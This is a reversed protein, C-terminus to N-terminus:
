VGSQLRPPKIQQIVSVVSRFSKCQLIQIIPNTIGPDSIFESSHGKLYSKLDVLGIILYRLQAAKSCYDRGRSYKSIRFYRYVSRM